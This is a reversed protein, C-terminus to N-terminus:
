VAKEKKVEGHAEAVLQMAKFTQQHVKLFDLLQLAENSTLGFSIHSPHTLVLGSEDVRVQYRGLVADM